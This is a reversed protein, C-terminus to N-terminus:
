KCSRPAAPGRWPGREDLVDVRYGECRFFRYVWKLLPTPKRPDLIRTQAVAVAVAVAAAAAVAAVAVAVAVAVM